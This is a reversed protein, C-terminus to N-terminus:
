RLGEHPSITLVPGGGSEVDDHTPEDDGDDSAHDLGHGGSSEPEKHGPSEGVCSSDNEKSPLLEGVIVCDPVEEHERSRGAM